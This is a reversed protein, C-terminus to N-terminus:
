FAPARQDNGELSALVSSAVTDVFQPPYRSARECLKVGQESGQVILHPVTCACTMGQLRAVLAMCNTMITTRKRMPQGGPSVLGFRCMDMTVKHVTAHAAIRKVCPYSWSSAGQPHEFVFYRCQRIQMMCFEMALQLFVVGEALRVRLSGPDMPDRNSAVVQTFCTCPPCVFLYQVGRARVLQKLYQRIAKCALNWGTSLDVSVAAILGLAVVAPVIRAPM